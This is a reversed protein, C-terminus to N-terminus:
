KSLARFINQLQYSHRQTHYIVFHIIELKTIDGFAPHNITVSLDQQTALQLLKSISHELTALVTEKSFLDDDPIIFSPANLKTDFDLFVKRLENVREDPKRIMRQGSLQLAKSISGNSKIVHDAVQAASWKDAALKTNINEASFAQVNKVFSSTAEELEEQIKKSDIDFTEM